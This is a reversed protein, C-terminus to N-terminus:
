QLGTETFTAPQPGASRPRAVFGHSGEGSVVGVVIGSDNIGTPILEEYGPFELLDREDVVLSECPLGALRVVFGRTRGAATIDGVILGENNIGRARTSEGNVWFYTVSGDAVRLWGYHTGPAAPCTEPLEVPDFASGVVDGNAATQSKGAGAAVRAGDIPLLSTLTQKTLDYVFPYVGSNNIGSGMVLGENSVAVLVTEPTGPHDLLSFEYASRDTPAAATSNDSSVAPPVSASFTTVCAENSRGVTFGFPGRAIIEFCYRTRATLDSVVVNTTSSAGIFEENMYVDYFIADADPTWTLEVANPGRVIATLTMTQPVSTGSDDSSGKCSAVVTSGLILTLGAFWAPLRLLVACRAWFAIRSKGAKVAIEPLSEVM